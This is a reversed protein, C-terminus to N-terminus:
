DAAASKPCDVEGKTKPPKQSSLHLDEATFLALLFDSVLKDQARKVKSLAQGSNVSPTFQM